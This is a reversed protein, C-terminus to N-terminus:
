TTISSMKALEQGGQDALVKKLGLETLYFSM